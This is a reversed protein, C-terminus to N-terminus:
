FRHEAIVDAYLDLARESRRPDLEAVAVLMADIVALHALRSAMAELRFSVERSGALLVVDAVEALPSKLFSTVLVTQAGAIRAAEVAALTERTSGTHSVAFCVDGRGLLRAAVHQVHADAPAEAQLGIARFRYGADQALPASTGVGVFLIRQARDVARVADDFAAPDVLASADRVSQAGAATVRSLVSMEREEPESLRFAALDQALALKLDHFGKFGLKQACRVVSATSVEAAAALETVSQHIVADPAERIVQAVRAEAPLLAEAAADIRPVVSQAAHQEAGQSSERGGTTNDMQM